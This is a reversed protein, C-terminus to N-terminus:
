CCENPSGKVRTFKTVGSTRELSVIFGYNLEKLLPLDSSSDGFGVSEGYTIERSLENFSVVKGSGYPINGSITGDYRGGSEKLSVSRYKDIGISRCIPGVLFDYNASIVVKESNPFQDIFALVEYNFHMKFRARKVFSTACKEIYAKDLGKMICTAYINKFQVNDIIGMKLMLVLPFAKTFRLKRCIMFLSFHILNDHKTLTGDLDLVILTM